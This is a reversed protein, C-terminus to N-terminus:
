TSTLPSSEGLSQSRLQPGIRFAEFVSPPYLALIEAEEWEFKPLLPLVPVQELPRDNRSSKVFKPLLPSSGLSAGRFPTECAAVDGPLLAGVGFRHM